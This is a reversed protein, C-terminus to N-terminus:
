SVPLYALITVEGKIKEEIKLFDEGKEFKEHIKTLERAVVVEANQYRELILAVTAKARSKAPCVM